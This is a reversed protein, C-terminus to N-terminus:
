DPLPCTLADVYWGHRQCPILTWVSEIGTYLSNRTQRLFNQMTKLRARDPPQEINPLPM